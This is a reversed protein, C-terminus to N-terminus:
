NRICVSGLRLWLSLNLVSVLFETQSILILLGLLISPLKRNPKITGNCLAFHLCDLNYEIYSLWTIQSVKVLSLDPNIIHDLQKTFLLTSTFTFFTFCRLAV